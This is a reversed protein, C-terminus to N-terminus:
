ALPGMEVDINREFDIINDSDGAPMFGVVHEVANEGESCVVLSADAELYCLGRRLALL